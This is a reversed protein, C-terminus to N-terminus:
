KAIKLKKELTLVSVDRESITGQPSILINNPVSEISYSSIIDSAWNRDDAVVKWAISDNELNNQPAIKSDVYISIFEVSDKNVKDYVEKLTKVTERSESGSASIFSLLLHKGRYDYSNLTDGKIDEIQFYPMTVGEASRNIKEMYNKLNLAMKSKLIDGELYEMVRELSKQSEPRAFFENILILSSAKSPNKQIFEEAKLILDQNVLNIKKLIENETLLKEEHNPDVGQERFDELLVSRYELLDKNEIKFATLEDNIDNGSVKMLDPTLADGTISIKDKPNVFAVVSSQQNNFYLSVSTLTDIDSKYIFKNDSSSKVTDVVLSENQYFSILIEDSTLNDIRGKLTASNDKRCSFLLLSLAILSIYIVKISSNKIIYANNKM